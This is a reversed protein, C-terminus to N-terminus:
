PAIVQKVPTEPEPLDVSRVQKPGRCLDGDGALPFLSFLGNLKLPRCKMSEVGKFLEDDEVLGRDPLRISGVNRGITLDLWPDAGKKGRQGFCLCFPEEGAVETRVVKLSHTM